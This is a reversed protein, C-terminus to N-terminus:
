MLQSWGLDMEQELRQEQEQNQAMFYELTIIPCEEQLILNEMSLQNKGQFDLSERLIISGNAHDSLDRLAM